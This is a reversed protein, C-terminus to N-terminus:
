CQSSVKKDNTEKEKEDETGVDDLSQGSTEKLIFLVFFFGIMCGIAYILLVGHIDIRASLIPFMKQSIFAFTSFSCCIIGMGNTRIKPPLIEVSCVFALPMIGIAAIFIIFSLSMVPVYSYASLDYGNISLYYFLATVIHGIAAGFLSILNLTRRKFKDALYTSTLSGFILAIGLLITSHYADM